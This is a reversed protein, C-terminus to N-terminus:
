WLMWAWVMIENTNRSGVIVVADMGLGHDREHEISHSQSLIWARAMYLSRRTELAYLSWLMWAWVMIENTNLSCVTVLADMGLGYNPERGLLRPEGSCGHWFPVRCNRGPGLRHLSVGM